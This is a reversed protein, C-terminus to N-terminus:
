CHVRKGSTRKRLSDSGQAACLAHASHCWKCVPITPQCTCSYTTANNCVRGDHGVHWCMRQSPSGSTLAENRPVLRHEVTVEGAASRRDQRRPADFELLQRALEARFAYHRHTLKFKDRALLFANAEAVGLIFSLARLPWTKARLADEFSHMNQRLQNATDVATRHTNYFKHVDPQSIKATVEHKDKNQGETVTAEKEGTFTSTRCSAVMTQYLRDHQIVVFMAEKEVTGSYVKTDGVRPMLDDLSGSSKRERLEDPMGKPWNNTPKVAMVAFLGMKLLAAVSLPRGFWCDAVVIRHSGEWPEVMRMTTAVASGFKGVYKKKAEDAANGAVELRVMVCSPSDAVSFYKFGEDTPKRSEVLRIDLLGLWKSMSEDLCLVHGPNVVTLMHENWANVFGHLESIHSGPVIDAASVLALGRRIANWRDRPMYVGLPVRLPGDTAWYESRLGLSQVTMLTAIGLWTVFEEWTLPVHDDGANSAMQANTSPIVVAKIYAVPLMHLFLGMPTASGPDLGTLEITHMNVTKASRACFATPKEEWASQVPDGAQRVNWPRWPPERRAAPPDCVDPPDSGGAVANVHVRRDALVHVKSLTTEVRVDVADLKVELRVVRALRTVSLVSGEVSSAQPTKQRVVARLEERLERVYMRM